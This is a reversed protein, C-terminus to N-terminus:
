TKSICNILKDDALSYKPSQSRYMLQLCIFLFFFSKNGNISPYVYVDLPILPNFTHMSPCERLLTVKSQFSFVPFSCLLVGVLAKTVGM